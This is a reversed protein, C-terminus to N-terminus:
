SRTSVDKLPSPVPAPLFSYREEYRKLLQECNLVKERLDHWTYYYHNSSEFGLTSDEALLAELRKAHDIERKLCRRLRHLVKHTHRVTAHTIMTPMTFLLNRWRLYRVQELTSSFHLYAALAHRYLTRLEPADGEPIGAEALLDLGSRWHRCLRALQREFIKEPYEARWNGIDDYPFGVMSSKYLLPQEFLLNMPGYHQPAYYAVCQHFPFNSFGKSFRRYAEQVLGQQPGPFRSEIFAQLENRPEDGGTKWYYRQVFRLTDSPYGGLSWSLMLADPFDDRFNEMLAHVLNLVPLSPIASLEWSNNLQVKAARKLGAARACEWVSRSWNSPGVQSISYDNLDGYSEGDVRITMGDESTSMLFTGEPLLSPLAKLKEGLLNRMAWSWTLFWGDPRVKHMGRWLARNVEAVVEVPERPGCRPCRRGATIGSSYCNTPHEGMTITFLGGLNPIRRFLASTAEELYNLVEPNSTCLTGVEKGMRQLTIGIREPSSEFTDLPMARPENFYLIVDIGYGAAQEVMAELNRLRQEHEAAFPLLEEWPYLTHLVVHLWIANVGMESYAELLGEPLRDNHLLPEGYSFHYPYILRLECQTMRQHVGPSLVPERRTLMQDDIWQLARLVGRADVSEITVEEPTIEISHSEKKLAADPTIKVRITAAESSASTERAHGSWLTSWRTRYREVFTALRQPPNEPLLFQTTGALSCEGPAPANPQLPPPVPQPTAPKAFEEIFAFACDEPPNPFHHAIRKRLRQTAEAQAPSLPEWVILPRTPKSRGLKSWLADDEKLRFRFEEADWGLLHGLQDYSLLHWNKRLLTMYGSTIWYPNVPTVGSTPPLGLAEAEAELTAASTNLVTALRELPVLGWNRWLVAQFSAPFHPFELADM